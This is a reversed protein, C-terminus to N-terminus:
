IYLLQMVRSWHMVPVSFRWWHISLVHKYDAVCMTINVPTSSSVVLVNFYDITANRLTFIANSCRTNKEFRFLCYPMIHLSPLYPPTTMPQTAGTLAQTLMLGPM